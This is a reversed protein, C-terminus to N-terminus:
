RTCDCQCNETYDSYFANKYELGAAECGQRCVAICYDNRGQQEQEESVSLQYLFISYGIKEYPQYDNLWAYCSHWEPILGQVVNVSVAAIGSVPYCKLQEYSIGRQEPLEKGFYALNLKEINNETVYAALLKLDQGWDINSDILYRYGKDPGGAIGNFYALYHPFILVSSIVYWLLLTGVIVYKIRDRINQMTLVSGAFVFLFPYVPLVHRLGINIDNFMFGAFFVAPPLLLFLEGASLRKRQFILACAAALLLILTPIPTKLFFAVIFYYWWGEVSHQGFLYNFHGGREHGFVSRVGDVYRDFHKVGYSLVLVFVTILVLFLAIIALRKAMKRRREKDKLTDKRCTFFTFLYYAGLTVPFCLLLYLSSFKTAFAFGTFLGALLMHRRTGHRAAKWLYYAAIFMFCALGLDTTVLRAHAIINPSFAYLSLALVGASFGYLERAWLFVYIGLLMALLVIPLRAFFLLRDTDNDRFLFRKGVEWQPKDPDKTANEWAEDLTLTPRIALLSTGALLKILPPHEPNLRYDFTTVYSYGAVIHAVEDNTASKQVMSAISQAALLLLLAVAVILEKHKAKMFAVGEYIGRIM